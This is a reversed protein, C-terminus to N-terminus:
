AFPDIIVTITSLKCMLWEWSKMGPRPHIHICLLLLPVFRHVYAPAVGRLCTHPAQLVYRVWGCGGTPHHRSAARQDYLCGYNRGETLTLDKKQSSLGIHSTLVLARFDCFIEVVCSLERNCTTCTPRCFVVTLLISSSGWARQWTQHRCGWSMSRKGSPNTIQEFNSFGHPLELTKQLKLFQM